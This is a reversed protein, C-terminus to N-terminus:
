QTLETLVVQSINGTPHLSRAGCIGFIFRLSGQVETKAFVPFATDAGPPELQINAPAFTIPPGPPAPAVPPVYHFFTAPATAWTAVWHQGNDEAFAAAPNVALSTVALVMATILVTLRKLSVTRKTNHALM